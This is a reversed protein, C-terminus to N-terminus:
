PRRATTAPPADRDALEQRAQAVQWDITPAVDDDDLSLTQLARETVPAGLEPPLARGFSLEAKRCIREERAHDPHTTAGFRHRFRDVRAHVGEHLISSAVVAASIDRRALFTLETLCTQNQPFYAGRCPFRAIWIQALDGKLHNYRHPQYREILSLADDLRELVADTEVDPRTNEVLVQFGRIDHLERQPKPARDSFIRFLGSLFQTM